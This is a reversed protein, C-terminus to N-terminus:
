FKEQEARSDSTAKSENLREEAGHKQQRNQQQM